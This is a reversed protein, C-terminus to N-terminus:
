SLPRELILADVSGGGARRYYGRRQGAVGYGCAAYLARAAHNDAAVELFARTAGRRAAAAQWAGMCARALGRRRLAPDTAITLLEAEDAIVRALAFARADGAAFCHPAAQLDAFERESWPRSPPMAVAHLRAMQAPTIM